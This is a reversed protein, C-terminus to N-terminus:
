PGLRLKRSRVLRYANGLHSQVLHKMFMESIQVIFLKILPANMHEFFYRLVSVQQKQYATDPLIKSEM